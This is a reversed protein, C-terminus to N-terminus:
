KHNISYVVAGEKSFFDSRVLVGRINYHEIQRIYGKQNYWGATFFHETQFIAGKSNFVSSSKYIGTKTIYQKSYYYDIRSKTGAKNFFTTRNTYGKKDSFSKSMILTDKIKINKEYHVIYATYTSTQGWEDTYFFGEYIKQRNKAFRIRKKYMGNSQIFATTYYYLWERDVRHKDQYREFREIGLKQNEYDAFEYLTFFSRGGLKNNVDSLYHIKAHATISLITLLLIFYIKM